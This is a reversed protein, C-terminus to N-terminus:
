AAPRIRCSVQSPTFWYGLEDEVGINRIERMKELADKNPLQFQLVDLVQEKSHSYLEVMLNVM